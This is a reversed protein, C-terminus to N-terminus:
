IVGGGMLDSWWGDFWGDFGEGGSLLIVVERDGRGGKEERGEM